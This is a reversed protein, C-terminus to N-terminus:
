LNDAIAGLALKRLVSFPLIITESHHKGWQAALPLTPSPTPPHPLFLLPIPPSLGSNM